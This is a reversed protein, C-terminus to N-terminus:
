GVLYVDCFEYYFFNKIAATVNNFNNKHLGHNVEDVMLSLRSLIWQDIYSLDSLGVTELSQVEAM